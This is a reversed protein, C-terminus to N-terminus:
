IHRNSPGYATSEGDHKHFPHISSHTFLYTSSCIFSCHSSLQGWCSLLFSVTAKSKYAKILVGTMDRFDSQSGRFLFFIFIRLGRHLTTIPKIFTESHFGAQHRACATPIGCYVRTRGLIQNVFQGHGSSPGKKDAGWLRHPHSM